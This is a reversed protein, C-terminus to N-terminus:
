WFDKANNAFIYTAQFCTKYTDTDNFDHQSYVANIKNITKHYFIYWPMLYIM